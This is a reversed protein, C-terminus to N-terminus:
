PKRKGICSSREDKEGKREAYSCFANEETTEGWLHCWDSEEDNDAPDYYGCDKCRIIEPQLIVRMDKENEIITAIDRAVDPQASPLRRLYGISRNLESVLAVNSYGNAQLREELVDIAARRDILDVKGNVDGSHDPQASPLEEVADLANLIGSTWTFEDELDHQKAYTRLEDETECNTRGVIASIAAKRSIVDEVMNSYTQSWTSYKQIAEIAMELADFASENIQPEFPEPEQMRRLIAIAYDKTMGTM